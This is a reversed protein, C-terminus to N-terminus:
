KGLHVGTRESQSCLSIPGGETGRTTCVSWPKFTQLQSDEKGKMKGWSCNQKGLQVGELTEVKFVTAKPDIRCEVRSRSRSRLLLM